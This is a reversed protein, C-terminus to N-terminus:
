QIEFDMPMWMSDGCRVGDCMHSEGQSCVRPVFILIIGKM